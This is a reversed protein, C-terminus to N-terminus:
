HGGPSPVLARAGTWKAVFRLIPTLVVNEGVIMMTGFRVRARTAYTGAEAGRKVAIPVGDNGVVRKVDGRDTISSAAQM